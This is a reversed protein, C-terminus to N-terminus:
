GNKGSGDSSTELKRILIAYKGHHCGSFDDITEWGEPVPESKKHYAM